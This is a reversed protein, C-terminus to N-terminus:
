FEREIELGIFLFFVAMLGDNIWHELSLGALREDWFAAVGPGATSNALALALITCAVLLLGGSKESRVFDQFTKSFTLIPATM